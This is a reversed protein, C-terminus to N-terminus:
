AQTLGAKPLKKRAMKVAEGCAKMDVLTQVTIKM